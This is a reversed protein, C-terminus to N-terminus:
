YPLLAGGGIHDKIPDRPGYLDGPFVLVISSLKSSVFDSIKLTYLRKVVVLIESVDELLMLCEFNLIGEMEYGMARTARAAEASASM